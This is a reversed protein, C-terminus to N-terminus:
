VGKNEFNYSKYEDVLEIIQDLCEGDTMNEGNTAVVKEIADILEYDRM